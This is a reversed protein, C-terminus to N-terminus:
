ENVKVIRRLEKITKKHLNICGQISMGIEKHIL